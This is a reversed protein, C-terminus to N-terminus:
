IENKINAWWSRVEKPDYWTNSGADDSKHKLKPKPADKRRMLGNFRNKTLGFEEALEKGSRLPVKAGGNKVRASFQGISETFKM